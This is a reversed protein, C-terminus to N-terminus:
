QPIEKIDEDFLQVYEGYGEEALKDKPIFHLSASNICYRLGGKSPPGDPFVHGLHSNGTKARVETRAYGIKFDTKSAIEKSNIPKTFAPWGCGSDYKDKSSFLPEGSIICVYIGEEFHKDFKNTWPRETAEHKTVQYQLPTLTSRLQEDTLPVYPKRKPIEKPDPKNVPEKKTVEKESKNAVPRTEKETANHKITAPPNTKEPNNTTPNENRDCSCVFIGAALIAQINIFQKMHNFIRHLQQRFSLSIIILTCSPMFANFNIWLM